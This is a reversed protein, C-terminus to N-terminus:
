YECYFRMIDIRFHGIECSILYLIIEKRSLVRKKANDKNRFKKKINKLLTDAKEAIKPDEQKRKEFYEQLEKNTMKKLTNVREQAFAKRASHTTYKKKEQNVGASLAAKKVSEQVIQSRYERPPPNGKRNTTRFVDAGGKKGKCLGKLKVLYEKNQIPIHRVLGGKGKVRITAKEFDIDKVQMKVAESVRLGLQAQAEHIDLVYGTYRSKQKGVESQVKEWIKYDAKMRTSESAKRYVEQERTMDLMVRKDGVKLQKGFEGSDKSCAFFAHLAHPFKKVTFASGEGNKYQDIESQFYEYAHRPKSKDISIGHNEELWTNYTKVLDGYTKLATDALAKNPKKPDFNIKEKKIYAMVNDIKTEIEPNIKM